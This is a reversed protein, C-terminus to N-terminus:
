CLDAHTSRWATVETAPSREEGSRWADLYPGPGIEGRRVAWDGVGCPPSLGFHEHCPVGAADGTHGVHAILQGTAVRQGPQLSAEISAFHSGYYRVGDDGVITVSLGGRTAGDNVSPDWRDTRSIESVSGSTPAVAVTGCPAFIDVAPYDHHAHGYHAVSSPSLPFTYSPRAATTTTASTPPAASTTPGETASPPTSTTCAAISGAIALAALGRTLAGV